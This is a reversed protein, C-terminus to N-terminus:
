VVLVPMLTALAGIGIFAAPGMAGVVGLVVLAASMALLLTSLAVATEISPEVNFHAMLGLIVALEGVVLGMLALAGISAASTGKALSLILMAAAMANLLVGLAVATPISAEVGLANMVGLIIALEGVVLGMLALTGITKNSVSKTNGLIFMAAAMSALLIALSGATQISAEVNLAAMVGLIIALIAVVGVLPLLKSM